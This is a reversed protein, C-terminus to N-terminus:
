ALVGWNPREPRSPFASISNDRHWMVSQSVTGTLPICQTDILITSCCAHCFSCDADVTGLSSKPKSQDHEGANAQHQREHHGFHKAAAGSEHQCYSAMAAWGLQLPMFVLLFIMFLRRMFVLLFVM